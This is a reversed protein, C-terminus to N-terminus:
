EGSRLKAFLWHFLPSVFVVYWKIVFLHSKSVKLLMIDKGQGVSEYHKHIYKKEILRIKEDDVRKLDHTGLVVRIPNRFSPVNLTWWRIKQFQAVLLLFFNIICKKHSLFILKYTNFDKKLIRIVHMLSQRLIVWGNDCHAATLVFDERILFGGCFHNGTADQLSVMYQM